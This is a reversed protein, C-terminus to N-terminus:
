RVAKRTPVALRYHKATLRRDDHQLLDAADDLTLALGAAMKRMDRLIVRRLDAAIARNEPKSAARDRALTWRESLMRLTVSRTPTSLLMTHAVRYARRRDLLASLVPSSAVDLAFRKGTKSAQGRLVGDAPMGVTVVDTLRLGTASAIDMADRLVQDAEAYVAAFIAPTVEFQRAKEPNKWRSRELGAAPWQATTLGETQAWRWIISLVALERNARTKATRRRLYGKLLPLTVDDWRAAEFVPRLQALSLAYDRRTTQRYHPLAGREWSDFAERLTGAHLPRDQTIEHWKALAAAYDTGLPLDREGSARRDFYYATRVEGGATRWSHSRLGPYKSRKPM